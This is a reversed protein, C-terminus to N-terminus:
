GTGLALSTAWALSAVTSGTAGSGEAALEAAPGTMTVLHSLQAADTVGHGTTKSLAMYMGLVLNVNTCLGDSFGFVAAKFSGDDEDHSHEADDGHDAGGQGIDIHSSARTRSASRSQRTPSPNQEQILQERQQVSGYDTTAM